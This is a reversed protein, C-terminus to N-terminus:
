RRWGWDWPHWWPDGHWGGWYGGHGYDHGYGHGYGDGHWGVPSANAVGAGVGLASAGVIGAAAIGGILRKLNM